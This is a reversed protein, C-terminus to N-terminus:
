EFLCIYECTWDLEQYITNESGKFLYSNDVDALPAKEYEFDKNPVVKLIEVKPTRHCHDFKEMNIDKFLLHFCIKCIIFPERKVLLFHLFGIEMVAEFLPIWLEENFIFNERTEKLNQFTLFNDNWHKTVTHVIKFRNEEENIKLINLINFSSFITLIDDGLFLTALFANQILLM